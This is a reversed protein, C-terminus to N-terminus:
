YLGYRVVVVTGGHRVAEGIRNPPPVGREPPIHPFDHLRPLAHDSGRPKTRVSDSRTLEEMLSMNLDAV